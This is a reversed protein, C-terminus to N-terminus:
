CRGGGDGDIAAPELKLEISSAGGRTTEAPAERGCIRECRVRERRWPSERARRGDRNEIQKQRAVREFQEVVEDRDTHRRKWRVVALASVVDPTREAVKGVATQQHVDTGTRVGQRDSIEGASTRAAACRDKADSWGGCHRLRRRQKKHAAGEGGSQGGSDSRAPLPFGCARTVSM